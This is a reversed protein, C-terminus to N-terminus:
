TIADMTQRRKLNMRTLLRNSREKPGLYAGLMEAICRAPRKSETAAHWALADALNVCLGRERIYIEAPIFGFACRRTPKEPERDATLYGKTRKVSSLYNM